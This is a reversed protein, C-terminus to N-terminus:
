IGNERALQINKMIAPVVRCLWPPPLMLLGGFVRLLV